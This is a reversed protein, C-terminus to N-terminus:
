ISLIIISFSHFYIGLANTILISLIVPVLTPNLKSLRVLILIKDRLPRLFIM